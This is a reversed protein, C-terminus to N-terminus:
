SVKLIESHIEEGLEMGKLKLLYTQFRGELQEEDVIINFKQKRTKRDNVVHGIMEESEKTMKLNLSNFLSKVKTRDNLDETQTKVFNIIPYKKQFLIARAHIELIYAISLDISNSSDGLFKLENFPSLPSIMWKPWIKNKSSYYGLECFSKLVKLPHRYLHIVQVNKLEHCVVDYFTKIFMHNTEVYNRSFTSRGLKRIAKVKIRREETSKSEPYKEVMRLYHDIMRPEPEHVALTSAATSLLSSLYESGARGTNICFIHSKFNRFLM